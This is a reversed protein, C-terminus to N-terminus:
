ACLRRRQRVVHLVRVAAAALTRLARRALVGAGLVGVILFAAAAVEYRGAVRRWYANATPEAAATAFSGSMVAGSCAYAFGLLGLLAAVVPLYRRLRLGASTRPHM